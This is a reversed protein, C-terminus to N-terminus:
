VLYLESACLMKLTEPILCSIQPGARNWMWVNKQLEDRLASNRIRVLYCM